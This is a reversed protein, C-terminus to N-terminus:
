SATWQADFFVPIYGLQGAISVIMAAFTNNTTMATTSAVFGNGMTNSGYVVDYGIADVTEAYIAALLGTTTAGTVFNNSLKLGCVYGTANIVADAPLAVWSELGCVFVNCGSAGGVVPAAAGGMEDNLYIWGGAGSINMNDETAILDYGGYFVGELATASWGTSWDVSQTFTHCSSEIRDTPDHGGDNAGVVFARTRRTSVGALTVRTGLEFGNLTPATGCQPWKGIQVAGDSDRKQEFVLKGTVWKTKVNTVPM